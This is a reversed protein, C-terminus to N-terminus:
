ILGRFNWTTFTTVNTTMLKRFSGVLCQFVRQFRKGISSVIYNLKSPAQRV